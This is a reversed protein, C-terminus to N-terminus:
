RQRASRNRELTMKAWRVMVSEPGGYRAQDALIIEAAERNAATYQDRLRTSSQKM